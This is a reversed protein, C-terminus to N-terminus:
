VFFTKNEVNINPLGAELQNYISAVQAADSMGTSVVLPTATAESSLFNFMAANNSDGSGIKLFPVQLVDLLFKASPIDMGSATFDIDIKRSYDSL